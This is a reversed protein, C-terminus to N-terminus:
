PKELRYTGVKSYCTIEVKKAEEKVTADDMSGMSSAIADVVREKTSAYLEWPQELMRSLMINNSMQAVEIKTIRERLNNNETKVIRNEELLQNINTANTEVKSSLTTTAERNQM